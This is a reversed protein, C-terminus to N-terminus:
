QNGKDLHLGHVPISNRSPEPTATPKAKPKKALKQGPIAIGMQAAAAGMTGKMPIFYVPIYKKSHVRGRKDMRYVYLVQNHKFPQGIPIIIRGGPKLQKFLPPPVFQAVCTFMIIDFGGVGEWGYYGDGVRTHVNTYGLPKFNRSVAEGLPKIIEISYAEKALRSLLSINFGSGTGIELVREKPGPHALQAMYAQGEYDSLASGWGLSWTRPPYEYATKTFEARGQYDYHYYERPIDQFAKLLRPDAQGFKRYLYHRIDTMMAPKREQVKAFDQASLHTVRGSKKFVKLFKKYTWDKDGAGKAPDSKDVPKVAPKDAPVEAPKDAPPPPVPTEQAAAPLAPAMLLALGLLLCPLVNEGGLRWPALYPLFLLREKFKLVRSVKLVQIWITNKEWATRPTKAVARGSRHPLAQRNFIKKTKLSM